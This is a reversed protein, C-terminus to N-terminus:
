LAGESLGAAHQGAEPKVILWAHMLATLALLLAMAYVVVDVRLLLQATTQGSESIQGAKVWMVWALGGLLTASLVEVLVQQVRRLWRPMLADLSDFTVHEGRLSVLPLAAFIVCVMLLETLELSGPLSSDLLKRGSVDVLTLLMIAFLGLAAMVGCLTTLAKKM